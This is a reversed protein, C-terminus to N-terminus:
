IVMNKGFLMTALTPIMTKWLGKCGVLQLAVSILLLMVIFKKFVRKMVKGKTSFIQKTELSLEMVM